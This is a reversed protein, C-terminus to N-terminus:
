VRGNALGFYLFASKNGDPLGLFPKKEYNQVKLVYM